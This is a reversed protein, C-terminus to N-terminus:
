VAREIADCLREPEDTGIRFRGGDRLSLEVADLGSVNWLWGGPTLRIGWGYWWANRVPRCAEIGSLSIRKRVPGPGFQVVMEDDGVTVTLSSFLVTLVAMVPILYPLPTQWVPVHPALLATMVALYLTSVGLSVLTMWGIQTHRYM